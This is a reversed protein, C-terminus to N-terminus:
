QIQLCGKMCLSDNFNSKGTATNSDSISNNYRAGSWSSPEIPHFIQNNSIKQNLIISIIKPLLLTQIPFAITTDLERDPPLSLPISSRIASLFSPDRGPDARFNILLCLFFSSVNAFACLVWPTPNKLDNFLNIEFSFNWCTKFDQDFMLKTKNPLPRSYCLVVKVFGYLVELLDM